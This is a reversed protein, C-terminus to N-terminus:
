SAAALRRRVRDTVNRELVFSLFPITGAILVLLLYGIPWRAKLLGLNIATVLYVMYLFGHIPGVIAVMTSNDFGYKVIMGACLLLLMVGVIYAVVRYYNLASEVAIM